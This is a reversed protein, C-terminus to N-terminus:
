PQYGPDQAEPMIELLSSQSARWTTRGPARLQGSRASTSKDRLADVLTVDPPRGPQEPVGLVEAVTGAVLSGEAVAALEVLWVGDPYAHTLDRAVEQALRTKGSGGAGTITLLRTTFLLRELEQKERERGVFSTLSGTLNHKGVEPPREAYTPRPVPVHGALIEEYVYRSAAQPETGPEQLLAQRLHEYQRLARYRQGAKAYVRMLRM